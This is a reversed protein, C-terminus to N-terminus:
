PKRTGATMTEGYARGPATMLSTKSWVLTSRRTASLHFRGDSVRRSAAAALGKTASSKSSGGANRVGGTSGGGASPYAGPGACSKRDHATDTLRRAPVVVLFLWGSYTADWSRSTM